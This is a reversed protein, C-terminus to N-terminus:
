ERERAELRGDTKPKMQKGKGQREGRKDYGSIIIQSICISFEPLFNHGKQKYPVTYEMTFFGEANSDVM